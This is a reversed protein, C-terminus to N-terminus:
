FAVVLADPLIRLDEGIYPLNAVTGELSVTKEDEGEVVPAGFGPGRQRERQLSGSEFERIPVDDERLIGYGDVDLPEAGELM